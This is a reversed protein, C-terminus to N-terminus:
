VYTPFEGDLVSSHSTVLQKGKHEPQGLTQMERKPVHHKKFKNKKMSAQSPLLEWAQIHVPFCLFCTFCYLKPTTHIVDTTCLICSAKLLKLNNM